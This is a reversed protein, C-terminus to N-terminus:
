RTVVLVSLPAPPLFRCPLMTVVAYGTWFGSGLWSLWHVRSCSNLSFSCNVISGWEYNGMARWPCRSITCPALSVHLVDSQQGARDPEPPWRPQSLGARRRSTPRRRETRRRLIIPTWLLSKLYMGDLESRLLEVEWLHSYDRRIWGLVETERRRWRSIWPLILVSV